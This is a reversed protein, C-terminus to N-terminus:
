EVKKEFELREKKKIEEEEKKHKNYLNNDEKFFDTDNSFENQESWTESKMEKMANEFSSNM